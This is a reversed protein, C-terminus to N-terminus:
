GAPKIVWVERLKRNAPWVVLLSDALKVRCYTVSKLLMTEPGCSTAEPVLGVQAMTKTSDRYEYAALTEVTVNTPPTPAPCGTPPSGKQDPCQDATDAVGDGDRDSVPPASVTKTVIISPMSEIGATTQTVYYEHTGVAVNNRTFDCVTAGSVLKTKSQGQLGGYLAFTSGALAAAPIPEGTDYTKAPQCTVHNDAAFASCSALAGFAAMYRISSRM